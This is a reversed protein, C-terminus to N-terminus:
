GQIRRLRYIPQCTGEGLYINKMKLIFTVVFSQKLIEKIQLHGTIRTHRSM